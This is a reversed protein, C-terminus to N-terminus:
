PFQSEYCALAERAPALDEPRYRIRDSLLSPHTGAWSEFQPLAGEELQPFATYLLDPRLPGTGAVVQTVIASIIRHDAHGYGGDPGWTMIVDPKTEAIAERTLALARKATSDPARAMSALAGDGLQWFTPEELGMAFAACRGERQRRKALREGPEVGSVVPGADGSTAFILTVDGGDRAIRTLVPAITIEDDPHALIVLVSPPSPRAPAVRPEESLSGPGQQAPAATASAVAIAGMTWLRSRRM